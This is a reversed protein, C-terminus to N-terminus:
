MSDIVLKEDILQKRWKILLMEVSKCLFLLLEILDKDALVLAKDFGFVILSSKNLGLPLPHFFDETRANRSITVSRVLTSPLHHRHKDANCLDRLQGTWICSNFPQYEELQNVHSVSIGKLFRNVGAVDYEKKTDFFKFETMKQYEGSDRQALEYIFHDLASKLNFLIDGIITSIQYSPYDSLSNKDSFSIDSFAGTVGAPITLGLLKKNCSDEHLMRLEGLHKFARDLKAFSSRFFLFEDHM